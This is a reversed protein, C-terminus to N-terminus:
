ERHATGGEADPNDLGDDTTGAAGNVEDSM